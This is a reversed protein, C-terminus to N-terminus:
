YKPLVNAEFGFLLYKEKAASQAVRLKDAAIGIKNTLENAM